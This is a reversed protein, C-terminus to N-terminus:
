IASSPTPSSAPGWSKYFENSIESSASSKGLGVAWPTTASFLHRYVWLEDLFRAFYEPDKSALEASTHFLSVRLLAEAIGVMVVLSAVTVLWKHRQFWRTRSNM